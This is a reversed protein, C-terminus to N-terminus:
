KAAGTEFDLVEVTKQYLAYAQEPTAGISTMGLKGHESVAGMLHFFVGEQRVSDYYLGHFVIIDLLDQPTLGRYAEKKLNDTAFYYRVQGNPMIYRCQEPVYRGDTLFQLMLYPHTTGGKRLNIEIAYHEWGADTKVSIFDIGFRGLGGKDRLAQAVKVGINCLKQQYEPNAPFTCGLFVQGSEGGLVQDHTSIVSIEGSPEIRCQVSPSTKTDGEVFAEVIGQMQTLKEVFHPYTLAADVFRIRKPLEQRIWKELNTESANEFSFVANGEGSFGDNLKIVAKKLHPNQRKLGTLSQVLERENHIDEFGEPLNVGATKFLQRSGSKSGWYYLEPPTAFMPIGLRVALSREAATVNFCVLHAAVGTPIARRIREILRPRELIKGTLTKASTDNCHLLTLRERAHRGPVGPLLHLYYDIIAPDLAHSTVYILRTEPKRLLMLLCLLREEYHHHGAIKTLMEEDLSLGPVVVVARPQNDDSWIETYQRHLQAQLESFVASEEESESLPFPPPEFIRKSTPTQM